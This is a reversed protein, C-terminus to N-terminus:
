SSVASMRKSICFTMPCARHSSSSGSFRDFQVLSAKSCVLGMPFSGKIFTFTLLSYSHCPM